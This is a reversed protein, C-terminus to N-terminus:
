RHRGRLAEAVKLMFGAEHLSALAPVPDLAALAKDPHGEAVPHAARAVGGQVDM